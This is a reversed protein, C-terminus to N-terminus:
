TKKKVKEPQYSYENVKGGQSNKMPINKHMSLVIQRCFPTGM